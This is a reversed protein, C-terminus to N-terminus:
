SRLVRDGRDVRGGDEFCRRDLIRNDLSSFAESSKSTVQVLEACTRLAYRCQSQKSINAEELEEEGVKVPCEGLFLKRLGLDNEFGLRRM